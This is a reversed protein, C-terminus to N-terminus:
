FPAGGGRPLSRHGRGLFIPSLLSVSRTPDFEVGSKTSYVLVWGLILKRLLRCSDIVESPYVHPLRQRPDANRRFMVRTKPRKVTM